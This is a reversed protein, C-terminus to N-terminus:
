PLDKPPIASVQEPTLKRLSKVFCHETFGNGDSVGLDLDIPACISDTGRIKTVLHAGPVRLMSCESSLGIKWVDHMRVKIYLTESDPARWGSWERSYFCEQGNPRPAPAPDAAAVGATLLAAALVASRGLAHTSFRM